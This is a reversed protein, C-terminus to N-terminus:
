PRGDKEIRGGDLRIVRGLRSLLAGDHSIAILTAGNARAGELLTAAVADGNQANLSATPEDALLLAPKGILARAVAVRQQEGRSLAAVPRTLKTLGMGEALRNADRRMQPPIHWAAFTAPLLINGLIGLEPVLAFDQFVFGVHLRRWRDRLTESRANVKDQGWSVAGTSPLLLGAIVHLLTTKGAGSPGAIGVMEGPAIGLRTIDLIRMEGGGPEPVSVTVDALTLPAARIGARPETATELSM